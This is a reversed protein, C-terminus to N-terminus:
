DADGYALAPPEADLQENHEIYARFSSFAAESIDLEASLKDVIALVERMRPRQDFNQLDILATHLLPLILRPKTLRAATELMLEASLDHRHARAHCRSWDMTVTQVRAEDGVDLAAAYARAYADRARSYLRRRTLENGYNSMWTSLTEGDRAREALE